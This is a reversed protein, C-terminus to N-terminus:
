WAKKSCSRSISPGLKPYYVNYYQLFSWKSIKNTYRWTMRFRVSRMKNTIFEQYCAAKWSSALKKCCALWFSYQPSLNRHSTPSMPFHRRPIHAEAHTSFNWLWSALEIGLLVRIFRDLCIRFYSLFLIIVDPRGFITLIFQIEYGLGLWLLFQPLLM